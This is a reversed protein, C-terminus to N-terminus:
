SLNSISQRIKMLAPHANYTDLCDLKYIYNGATKLVTLQAFVCREPTLIPVQLLINFKKRYIAEYFICSEYHHSGM